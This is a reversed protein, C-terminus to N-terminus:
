VLAQVSALFEQLSTQNTLDGSQSPDAIKLNHGFGSYFQRTTAGGAAEYADAFLTASQFGVFIDSTGHQMVLPPLSAPMSASLQHLPSLNTPDTAAWEPTITSEFAIPEYPGQPTQFTALTTAASRTLVAKPTPVGLTEGPPRLDIAIVLALSAGASEGGVAIRSIDLGLSAANDHVHRWADRADQFTQTITANDVDRLRYNPTIVVYGLDALRQATVILAASDGGIWGGGHFLVVAPDSGTPAAPYFLDYFLDRTGTEAATKYIVTPLDVQDNAGDDDVIGPGIVHPRVDGAHDRTRQFGNNALVVDGSASGLIAATGTNRVVGSGIMRLVGAAHIAAAAAGSGSAGAAQDRMQIGAINTNSGAVLFMGGGTRSAVNRNLRAGRLSLTGYSLLGGGLEATNNELFTADRIRGEAAAAIWLGGGHLADNGRVRSQEFIALGELALVGGGFRSTNDDAFSRFMRLRTSAGGPQARTVAIGGGLDASNVITRTTEINAISGTLSVAGGLRASNDFLISDVLRVTSDTAAIAGGLQTAANQRLFADVALLRGGVVDVFGGRAAQGGAGIMDLLRVEGTSAITGGAGAASFVGDTESGVRNDIARVNKLVVLGASDIAGGRRTAENRQLKVDDLTVVSGAAAVIAGGREDRGRVLDIGQITLQDGSGVFFLGTRDGGTITLPQAAVITAHGAAPLRGLAPDVVIATGALAPAFEIRNTATGAAADAVTQGDAALLAERLSLQGDAAVADIATTVTYVTLM